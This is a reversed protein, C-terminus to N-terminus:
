FIHEVRDPIEVETLQEGDWTYFFIQAQHVNDYYMKLVDVQVFDDSVLVLNLQKIGVNWLQKVKRHIIFKIAEFSKSSIYKIEVASRIKNNKSYILGDVIIKKDGNTVRIASKYKDKYKEILKQHVIEEIQITKNFKSLTFENDTKPVNKPVGDEIKVLLSTKQKEIKEVDEEDKITELITKDKVEEETAPNVHMGGKVGGPGVETMRNKIFYSIAEHQKIIILSGLILITAPWSNLILKLYSDLFYLISDIGFKIKYLAIFIIVIFLALLVKPLM